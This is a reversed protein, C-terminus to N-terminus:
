GTGSGFDGNHGGGESPPEAAWFGNAGGEVPLGAAWFGKATGESPPGAAWFCEPPGTVRRNGLASNSCKTRPELLM